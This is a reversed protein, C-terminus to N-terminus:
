TLVMFRQCAIVSGKRVASLEGEYKTLKDEETKISKTLGQIELEKAGLIQKKKAEIELDKKKQIEPITKTNILNRRGETAAIEAMKESIERNLNAVRPNSKVPTGGFLRGLRAFIVQLWLVFHGILFTLAWKPKDSKQWQSIFHAVLFGVLLLTGLAFRDFSQVGSFAAGEGVSRLDNVAPVGVVVAVGLCVGFTMMEIMKGVIGGTRQAVTHLYEFLAVLPIVFVTAAFFSVVSNTGVFTAEVSRWAFIVDIILLFFVLWLAFVSDLAAALRPRQEELRTNLKAFPTEQVDKRTEVDALTEQEEALRVRLADVQDGLETIKPHCDEAEKQFRKTENAWFAEVKNVIEESKADYLADLGELRNRFDTIVERVGRIRGEMLSIYEGFLADLVQEQLWKMRDAISSTMSRAQNNLEETSKPNKRIWIRTDKYGRLFHKNSQLYYLYGLLLAGLGGGGWQLLQTLLM